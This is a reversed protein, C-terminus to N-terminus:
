VIKSPLVVASSTKPCFGCKSTLRYGTTEVVTSSDAQNVWVNSTPGAADMDIRTTSENMFEQPFETLPLLM